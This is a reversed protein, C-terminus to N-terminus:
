IQNTEMGQMMGQMEIYCDLYGRMAAKGDASNENCSNKSLFRLTIRSQTTTQSSVGKAKQTQHTQVLLQPLLYLTIWETRVKHIGNLAYKTFEM